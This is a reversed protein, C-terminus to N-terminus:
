VVKVTIQLLLKMWDQVINDTTNQRKKVDLFLSETSVEWAAKYITSSAIVKNQPLLDRYQNERNMICM